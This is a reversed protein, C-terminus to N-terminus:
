KEKLKKEKKELIVRAKLEERGEFTKTVFPLNDQDRVRVTEKKDFFLFSGEFDELEFEKKVFECM